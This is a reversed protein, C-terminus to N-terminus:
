RLNSIFDLVLFCYTVNRIIQASDNVKDSIGFVDLIKAFQAALEAGTHRQTVKVIDLLWTNVVGKSAYQVTVAM